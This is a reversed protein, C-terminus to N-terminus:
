YEPRLRNREWAEDIAKDVRKTDERPKVHCTPCEWSGYALLRGCKHHVGTYNVYYDSAIVLDDKV